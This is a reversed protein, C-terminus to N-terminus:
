IEFFKETVGPKLWACHSTVISLQKLPKQQTTALGTSVAKCQRDRVAGPELGTSILRDRDRAPIAPLGLHSINSAAHPDRIEVM